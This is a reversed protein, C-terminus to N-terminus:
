CCSAPATSSRLGSRRLYWGGHRVDAAESSAFVGVVDSTDAPSLNEFTKGSKAPVFKGGILNGYTKASAM